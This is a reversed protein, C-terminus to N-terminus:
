DDDGGDGGGDGDDEPNGNHCKSCTATHLTKTHCDRCSAGEHNDDIAPHKGRYKAAWNNITHCELCNLGFLGAHYAPDGHCSACATSLEVFQLDRHCRECTVGAHGGVLPFRSLNHDFDVDEWDFPTHCFACDTGYQGNHEDEKQHCSYCDMPTGKFQRDIHCSECSVEAHEGVLRFAALNHDFTAPLWGDESHCDGCGTGFRREHPDDPHHCSYCDQLTVPFDGLGRASFHCRDCALGV